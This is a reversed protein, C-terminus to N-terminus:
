AVGVSDRDIQRIEAISFATVLNGTKDQWAAMGPEWIVVIPTSRTGVLISRITDGSWLEFSSLAEEPAAGFFPTLVFNQGQDISYRTSRLDNRDVLYFLRDQTDGTGLKSYSNSSNILDTFSLGANESIRYLGTVGALFGGKGWLVYLDNVNNADVYPVNVSVMEGRDTSTITNVTAWAGGRNTTKRLLSQADAANGPARNGGAYIELAASHQAWRVDPWGVGGENGSRYGFHEDFNQLAAARYVFCVQVQHEGPPGGRQDQMTIIFAFTGDEEISFNLRGKYLYSLGVETYGTFAYLAAKTIEQTWTGFPFTEHKWIGTRTFAWLTKETGGSTWWHHPDRKIDYVQRDDATTLGANVAYWVPNTAGIDDTVYIGLDTAIIRRGTDTAIPNEPTPPDVPPFYPRPPIPRTPLEDPIDITQGDPGDTELEAELITFLTGAAPEHGFGINRVIFLDTSFDHRVTDQTVNIYEQPWIDFYRWNGALPFTNQPWRNNLKSIWRGGLTNLTAQDAIALSMSSSSKGKLLNVTGPAKALFPTILGANYNLGGVEVIGVPTETTDRFTLQGIWDSEQMTFTTVGSAAAQMQLDIDAKWREYRDCLVRAFLRDRYFGDMVSYVDGALFDMARIEETDDSDYWDCILPITSHWVVYFWAARDVTLDPAKFWEDAGADNELPIPYMERNRAQGAASIIDFTVDGTQDNQQVSGDAVRGIFVINEAGAIPGISEQDSGYWDDAFLIVLAGDWVEIEDAQTDFVTVTARWAGDDWSGQLGSVAFDTIPEANTPDGAQTNGPRRLTFVYRIGRRFRVPPDQLDSGIELRVRYGGLGSVNSYTQAPPNETNLVTWGAGGDQGYADWDNVTGGPAAAYSNSWDFDVDATGGVDLFEVRHPGMIPVPPYSAQRRAADTAGLSDWTVDFDKFWSLVGAAETVVPYRTWLRFEELVVVFDDDEIVAVVDSTAGIDLTVTAGNVTQDGRVRFIGKDHDGKVTGVMVTMGDLIDVPGADGNDVTLDAVLDGPTGAPNGDIQASWLYGQWTGAVQTMPQQVILYLRSKHVTTRLKVLDGAPIAPM